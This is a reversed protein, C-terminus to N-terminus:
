IDRLSSKISEHFHQLCWENRGITFHNLAGTRAARDISMAVPFDEYDLAANVLRCMTSYYFEVEEDTVGSPVYFSHRLHSRDITKGPYMQLISVMYGQVLVMTAPFFHYVSIFGDNTNWQEEPLERMLDITKWPVAQRSCKGWFDIASIGSHLYSNVTNRHVYQFHYNETATEVLLKWNCDVTWERRNFCRWNEFNFDAFMDIAGEQPAFYRKSGPRLGVFLFGSREELPLEILYEDFVEVSKGFDDSSIAILKGLTNYTWGHYPCSLRRSSGNEGSTLSAGRHRCSNLFAHLKGEGDRTLLVPTGLMDVAYWTDPEPLDCSLAVPHLMENVLWDRERRFLDEDLYFDAKQICTERALDTSGNDIHEFLRKVVSREGPGAEPPFSQRLKEVPIAMSSIDLGAVYDTPEITSM